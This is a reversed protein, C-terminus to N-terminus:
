QRCQIPASTQKSQSQHNKRLEITSVQKSINHLPTAFSDINIQSQKRRQQNAPKTSGTEAIRSDDSKKRIDM